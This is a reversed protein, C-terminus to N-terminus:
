RDWYDYDLEDPNVGVDNQSAYKKAIAVAKQFDKKVVLSAGVAVNGEESYFGFEKKQPKVGNKILFNALDNAKQELKPMLSKVQDLTMYTEMGSYLFTLAYGGEQMLIIHDGGVLNVEKLVGEVIKRIKKKDM